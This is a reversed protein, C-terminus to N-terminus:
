LSSVLDGNDANWMYVGGDQGSAIVYTGCPTICSSVQILTILLLKPLTDMKNLISAKINKSMQLKCLTKVISNNYSAITPNAGFM